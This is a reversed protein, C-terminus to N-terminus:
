GRWNIDTVDQYRFLLSRGSKDLKVRVMGKISPATVVGYRDGMMWRDTGPHLEVRQGKVFPSNNERRQRHRAM